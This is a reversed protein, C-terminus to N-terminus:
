QNFRSTEFGNMRLCDMALNVGNYFGKMIENSFLGHYAPSCNCFMNSVEENLISGGVLFDLQESDLMIKMVMPPKVWAFANASLCGTKSLLKSQHFQAVSIQLSKVLILLQRFPLTQLFDVDIFGIDM